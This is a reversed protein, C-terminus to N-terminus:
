YHFWVRVPGDYGETANVLTQCLDDPIRICSRSVNEGLDEVKANGHIRVTRLLPHTQDFDIYVKCHGMANGDEYPGYRTKYKGPYDRHMNATPVWTPGMVARRVTGTIGGPRGVNYYDAKPLAVATRLLPSVMGDESITLTATSFDVEVLRDAQAPLPALLWGTTVVAILCTLLHRM